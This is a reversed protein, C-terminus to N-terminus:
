CESFIATETEPAETYKDNLPMWSASIWSLMKKDKNM